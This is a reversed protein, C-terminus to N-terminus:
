QRGRMQIRRNTFDTKYHAISYRAITFSLTM